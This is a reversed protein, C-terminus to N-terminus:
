RRQFEPSSLVLATLQSTMSMDTAASVTTTGDPRIQRLLTERTAPSVDGSLISGTLRDVIQAPRVETGAGVEADPIGIEMLNGATLALSFNVRAILAGTSVWKHSDEPYGTPAQYQFLPEGMTSVQGVLTRTSFLNAGGKNGALRPAQFLNPTVQYTGGLARVSSVGYEFPSKIKQRYATRSYFEPSTVITRVIERIDGDTKQWTAVCKNVLSVPPTDSVFRQCLEYSVHKMTAPHSALLDLIMEGDRVGGNAPIRHGLVEKEGEDHLFPYFQFNGGLMYKRNAYEPDNNPMRELSWGTFCRAVETVDKQTYGGDVGLTHLEMIERGYNENLGGANKKAKAGAGLGAFAAFQPRRFGFRGQRAAQPPAHPSTSQYNDLYVLMAASKASAGLLDRFKGLAYPRIVDRDDAVKLTACQAKRTDINFHNSWFDVMVEQLQRQSEVARLTKATVLQMQAEVVAQQKAYIEQRLSRIESRQAPSADAMVQARKKAQDDAAAGEAAMMPKGTADMVPAAAPAADGAAPNNGIISKRLRNAKQVSALREMYVRALDDGTMTLAHFTAIQAEVPADSIRGPHLQEDIYRDLGISKVREIDGPRPGFGLRNLVHVIKQQETLPSNDATPAVASPRKGASTPATHGSIGVLACFATTGALGAGTRRSLAKM